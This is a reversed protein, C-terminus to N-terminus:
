SSAQAGDWFLRHPIKSPCLLLDKGPFKINEKGIIMGSISWVSRGDQSTFIPGGSAM